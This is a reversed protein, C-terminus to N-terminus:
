PVLADDVEGDVLELVYPVVDVEGELSWDDDVMEPVVDPLAVPEAEPESEVLELVEGVALVDLVLEVGDLVAFLSRQVLEGVLVSEVALPAVVPEVEPETADFLWVLPWCLVCLELVEGLAVDEVPEVEDSVSALLLLL